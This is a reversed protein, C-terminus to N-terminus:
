PSTSSDTVPHISRPSWDRMELIELIITILLLILIITFLLIILIIIFIIIKTM